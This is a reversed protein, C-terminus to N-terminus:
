AADMGGILRQFSGGAYCLEDWSGDEVLKGNELVVIREAIKMMDLSHTIIVVAMASTDKRFPMGGRSFNRVHGKRGPESKLSVNEFGDFRSPSMPPAPAILNQITDRVLKASEVDLASTAEDLILIKPRRILARSISIRQAQGGSLGQAGEGILTNYGEPLSMIFEHIGAEKGARHVHGTSRLPSTEPLGYTINEGITSPFLVPAQPVIAILDRLDNISIDFISSGAFTLTPTHHHLPESPPYMGLLLTALTSKGSGSSGVIATSTGAEIKLNLNSIIKASPRSPYSFSLNQFRIPFPNILRVAGMSEFSSSEPLRSLRIIRAATAKSSAIQPISATSAAASSSAFLLLTIVLVVKDITATGNGAVVAGYYMVLATVFFTSADNLGFFPASFIARRKGIQYAAETAADHKNKFYNELTLARVVRINAFTENFVESVKSGAENGRREWESSITEFLRSVIFIFPAAALGVLSLQWCATFSWVVAIIMMTAALVLVGIFRGIINRMEEANRDLTDSLVTPSNRPNDFWSRPQALVRTLVEVRLNDVWMQGCYEFCYHSIFCSLGDIGGIALTILAWFRSQSAESPPLSYTSMLKSLVYSFAPTCGATVGTCVFALVFIARQRTNLTKWLTGIITSLKMEKKKLKKPKPAKISAAKKASYMSVVDGYVQRPEFNPTMPTMTRDLKKAGSRSSVTSDGMLQILELDEPTQLSSRRGNMSPQRALLLAGAKISKRRSEAPSALAPSPKNIENAYKAPLAPMKPGKWTTEARLENMKVTGMGVSVRRNLTATHPSGTLGLFTSFRGLPKKPAQLEGDYDDSDSSSDVSVLSATTVLDRLGLGDVKKAPPPLFSIFPGDAVKELAERFGEQVIRGKDLVYLFDKPAIQTIDHTIVITTKGRRWQRIAEMVLSRSIPDLASTAEDLILISSDKLKSRAISVRQKQGGSMQNGGSGIFTDLGDPLNHITEQLLAIQCAALVDTRTVTAHQARGFAINRFLTENFLVSQQQILTVNNRVWELDLTQLPRGDISIEGSGPEYYKMLLNSLTSKGSGSRGVVFTTEGAPFFFTSPHLAKIDPTSPYSFSVNTVDIDGVCTTPRAGGKMKTIVRGNEMQLIIHKLTEGASMGKTLVIWQPLLAEVAEVAQMVAYFTTLVSGAKVGQHVLVSGYWFGLVFIMIGVFKSAGLQMSIGSAQKLYSLEAMRVSYRYRGIEYRQANYAKVTEISSISSIAAKSAQSLHGKQALIAAQLGRNPVTSALLM